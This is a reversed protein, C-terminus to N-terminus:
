IYLLEAGFYTRSLQMLEPITTPLPPMEFNPGQTTEPGGVRRLTDLLLRGLERNRLRKDARARFERSRSPLVERFLSIGDWRNIKKTETCFWANSHSPVFSITHDLDDPLRGISEPNFFASEAVM